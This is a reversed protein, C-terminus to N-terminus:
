EVDAHTASPAPWRETAIQRELSQCATLVERVNLEQLCQCRADPNNRRRYCKRSCDANFRVVRNPEWFPGTIQPDTPGFIGVVPTGMAAALHLPGSDPAIFLRAKECLAALERLKLAPALVAPEEMADMIRRALPEEGPGWVILPTFDMDNVLGDALGAYGEITWQKVAKSSGPSLIALREANIGEQRLFVEVAQREVDTIAIPVRKPVPDVGLPRLLELNQIIAHRNKKVRVRNTQCFWGGEAWRRFGLRVRAGSLWALISARILPQFTISGTFNIFRLRKIFAWITGVAYWFGELTRLKRTVKSRDFSEIGSLMPLDKLLDKYPEDVTWVLKTKPYREYLAQVAPLTHIIDGLASMRLILLNYPRSGYFPDRTKM